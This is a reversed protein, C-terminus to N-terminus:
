NGNLMVKKWTKNVRLFYVGTAVRNGREDTGDWQLKITGIAKSSHLQRIKRSYMDYIEVNLYEENQLNIEINISEYFPNPYFNVSSENGTIEIGTTVNANATMIVSGNKEFRLSANNLPQLSLPYERGNRYLKLIIDRGNGFGNTKELNGDAASAILNIYTSQQKTIKTAGVCINGDFIGIEDGETIGSGDLNVLYINMHDVGNGKFAPQFHTTPILEPQINNSKPYGNYVWMTDAASVKVKFGEGPLFNGIDNKWDGYIGLDEISKGTEDQVKILVDSNILQQVVELGDFATTQPYSIINWGTKLPISYPYKVTQGCIEVSNSNSMKVKYGESLAIDGLDSDWGGYIGLDELSNGEEDQIKILSENDIFPQFITEMDPVAPMVPSSFINWGNNFTIEICYNMLLTIELSTLTLGSVEANTVECYYNGADAVTLNNIELTETTQAPLIVGDKYWKYSNQTGGTLLTYTLTEGENKTFELSEGISNQPSYIFTIGSLVNMNYELDEFSIKNDFVYLDTLNYPSTYEPLYDLQNGNLHLLLLNTLQTLKLPVSGTLQNDNLGLWELNTLDGLEDPIAGSFLNNNLFTWRLSIIQGMEAPISGTLLNNDLYLLELNILNSFEVPISGTLQNQSLNLWILNTLLGLETPISGTLQNEDLYLQELDTLQSLEVPISGALQNQGLHLWVLNTLQALEAPISGMLNNSNLYLMRLNPMVGFNPISGSFQNSRLDMWIMNSLQGLEDPITGTLSNSGLDIFELSTLSGLQVPVSGTLQNDSLDLYILNTLNALQTPIASSLQNDALYLLTLSTLNGLEIPIPGTLKNGDLHLFQLNELDGLQTPITGTIQNTDLNLIELSTLNGLSSPISGSLNNKQLEIETVRNSVVTIGYWTDVNGTLWNANSSWNAGETSNYLEVLILSDAALQPDTVQVSKLKPEQLAKEISAAVDKKYASLIETDNKQVSKKQNERAYINNCGVSILFM